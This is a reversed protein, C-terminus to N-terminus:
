QAFWRVGIATDLWTTRRAVVAPSDVRTMDGVAKDNAAPLSVDDCARDHAVTMLRSVLLPSPFAVDPPTTSGSSLTPTSPVSDNREGQSCIDDSQDTTSTSPRRALVSSSDSSTTIIQPLGYIATKEPLKMVETFDYVVDSSTAAPIQYVTAITASRSASNRVGADHKRAVLAGVGVDDNSEQTQSSMDHLSLANRRSNRVATEAALGAPAPTRGQEDVALDGGGGGANMGLEDDVEGHGHMRMIARLWRNEARVSATEDEHRRAKEVKRHERRMQKQLSSIQKDKNASERELEQVRYGLALIHNDKRRREDQIRAAAAAEHKTQFIFTAMQGGGGADGGNGASTRGPQPESSGGGFSLTASRPGTSITRRPQPQAGALGHQLQLEPKPEERALQLVGGADYQSEGATAATNRHSNTLRQAPRGQTADDAQSHELEQDARLHVVPRRRINERSLLAIFALDLSSAEIIRLPPLFSVPGRALGGASAGGNATPHALTGRSGFSFSSSSSGLGPDNTSATINPYPLSTAPPLHPTNNARTMTYPAGSGQAAAAAVRASAPAPPCPQYNHHVRCASPPIPFDNTTPPPSPLTAYFPM